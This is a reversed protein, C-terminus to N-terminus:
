VNPNYIVAESEFPIAFGIRLRGDIYVKSDNPAAFQGIRINEFDNMLDTGLVFNSIDAAIMTANDLGKVPVLEIGMYSVKSGEAVFNSAVAQNANLLAPLALRLRTHTEYAMYIALSENEMGKHLVDQPIAEFLKEIEDLVNAKTLVVGKIKISEASDTLVKVAGDFDDANTTSNGSFIKTEIEKSVEASLMELTAEELTDPMELNKAGPKLMWIIRKQELDDVCQELNIKYTKIKLEKESLKMVQEPTWACNRGDAQLVGSTFELLNLQTNEKVGTVPTIKGSEILKGGFVAKTFWDMHSSPQYSLPAMNYMNAM